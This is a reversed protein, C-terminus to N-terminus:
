PASGKAVSKQQHCNDHTTSRCHCCKDASALPSTLDAHTAAIWHCAQGSTRLATQPIDSPHSLRLYRRIFALTVFALFNCALKDYRTAFHRNEKLWGVCQEIVSRKRYARKDLPAKGNRRIQDSRQPIM